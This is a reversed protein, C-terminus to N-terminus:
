CVCRSSITLKAILGPVRLLFSHRRSPREPWDSASWVMRTGCEAQAQAASVGQTLRGLITDILSCNYSGDPCGFGAKGLMMAPLWVQEPLGVLDGDFGPPTVGIVTFEIGNIQIQSGLIGPDSNFHGKWLDDSIIAVANRNPVADEAPLFARGLRPQVKLLDFYNGSVFAGSVEASGSRTVMNLQPFHDEASLASFSSAHERLNEFEPMSFGAGYHGSPGEAYIRVLQNPDPLSLPKLFLADIMSFIATNAGIGLALTLVAVLTFGPSKIFIRLAFRADQILHELFSLGEENHYSERVVESSGFTLRAQRRSEEPSMGARINEETQMALHMEMEERLRKDGRRHFM